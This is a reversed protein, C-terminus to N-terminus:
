ACVAVGSLGGAFGKVFEGFLVVCVGFLSSHRRSM